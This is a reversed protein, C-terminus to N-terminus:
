KLTKQYVCFWGEKAQGEFYRDAVRELERLQHASELTNFKDEFGKQQWLDQHVTCALFGGPKLVRVLEDLPEAGVHGHTFTGSSVIAHYSQDAFHLYHNLDAVFLERYIRKQKAIEVMEPSYDLGDIINFGLDVCAKATLGTGCGIDLIEANSNQLHRALAKAIKQPSLYHLGQQMQEDYEAAWKKYFELQSSDDDTAYAEQLFQEAKKTKNTM